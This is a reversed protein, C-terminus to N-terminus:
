KEAWEGNRFVPTVNGKVDLGDINMTESGIMWDVHIMSSNGGHQEVEKSTLKDGNQFCKSYCQGLAIHCAANEDFLTNYFLLNSQSIPSGHPVLAVEGLRRAGEDTDLLKLFVEEGKSASAETIVGDKFTVSIDEILTGQHSLPKTSKVYGNVKLSHPTTFVEETPINPNCTVGNRATSAGGAWEHKNALGVTLDTDDGYFRLAEFNQDNLWDTRERLRNNHEVWAAMPDPSQVRSAAFIADALALQAKEDSLNPFVRKAWQTGPWAIINWNVDFRTIRERLPSSAKSVAKNAKGVDEPDQEALLMPDDGVVALRATNNDFAVAMGEFLWDTVKEFSDKPAHQYRALVVEPDTYLPTVIGAGAKYAHDALRRVLPAAEIPATILLDQGPQLSVGTKISLEALKDLEISKDWNIKAM